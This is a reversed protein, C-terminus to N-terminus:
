HLISPGPETAFLVVTVVDLEFANFVLACVSEGVSNEDPFTVALELSSSEGVACAFQTASYGLEFSLSAVLALATPSVVAPVM